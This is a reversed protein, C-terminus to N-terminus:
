ISGNIESLEYRTRVWQSMLLISLDGRMDLPMNADFKPFFPYLDRCRTLYVLHQHELTIMFNNPYMLILLAEYIGRYPMPAFHQILTFSEFINVLYPRWQYNIGMINSLETLRGLVSSMARSRVPRTSVIIQILFLRAFYFDVVTQINYDVNNNLEGGVGGLNRFTGNLERGVGMLNDNLEGVNGALNDNLEGVDGM